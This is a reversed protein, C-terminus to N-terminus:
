SPPRDSSKQLSDRKKDGELFNKKSTVRMKSQIKPLFGEKNNGGVLALKTLAIKKEDKELHM